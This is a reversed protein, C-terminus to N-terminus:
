RNNVPGIIGHQRMVDGLRAKSLGMSRSTHALANDGSFNFDDSKDLKYQVVIKEIRANAEDLGIRNNVFLVVVARIKKIARSERTVILFRRPDLADANHLTYYVLMYFLVGKIIMLTPIAYHLGYIFNAGFLVYALIAYFNQIQLNRSNVKRYNLVLTLGVGTVIISAVLRPIGIHTTMDASVESIEPVSGAIFTDTFLLLYGGGFFLAATFLYFSWRRHDFVGCIALLAASASGLCVCDVFYHVRLLFQREIGYLALIDAPTFLLLQVMSYIVFTVCLLVLEVRINPYQERALRM